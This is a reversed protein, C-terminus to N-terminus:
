PDAHLGCETKAFGPWRGARPDDGDLVPSTCPICGISPYGMEHLPNYPVDRSRLYDWVDDTTWRALPNIKVLRFRADWEVVGASRRQPTQERRIGTVWADLGALARRLPEVKRLNCCLNPNREWLNPGFRVAQEAVSLEPAYRTLEIDYRAAVLDRVQYTEAFHLGTDLYFARAGPRLRAMMDLIVMDEAQFSCALAIRPHFRGLAWRLVDEAEATEFRQRWAASERELASTSPTTTDSM